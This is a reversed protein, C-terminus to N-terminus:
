NSPALPKEARVNTLGGKQKARDAQATRVPRRPHGTPPPREPAPQPQQVENAGNLYYSLPVSNIGNPGTM